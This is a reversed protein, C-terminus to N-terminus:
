EKKSNLLLVRSTIKDQLLNWTFSFKLEFECCSSGQEIEEMFYFIYSIMGWSDVYMHASDCSSLFIVGVYAKGRHNGLM